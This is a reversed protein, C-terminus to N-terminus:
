AAEGLIAFLQDFVRRQEYREVVLARGALALRRAADPRALADAIALAFAEPERPPVTWGTRGPIVTETLGGVASAVVPVGCALAELVSFGLGEEHSAQVCIDSAQYSLPLEREPHVADTATVFDAVRHREALAAFQRHGGSRHLLRVDRGAERLLSLARVVTTADKEPAIRSGFFLMTDCRPLGLRARLTAPPDVAPKFRETDVGYVPVVRVPRRTGHAQVIARLYESLVIYRSGLRANIRALAVLGRYALMSYPRDPTPEISRCRYYRELPSCVIMSAPPGTLRAALNAALAAPGYGQVLVHDYTSGAGLLHRLTAMSFSARSAPLLRLDIPAATPQSIAVGGPIARALVTLESRDALGEVLRVDTGSEVVFCLKM